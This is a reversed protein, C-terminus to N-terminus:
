VRLFIIKEIRAPAVGKGGSWSFRYKFPTRMRKVSKNYCQRGPIALLAVALNKSLLFGPLV